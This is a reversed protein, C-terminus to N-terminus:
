DHVVVRSGPRENSAWVGHWGSPLAPETFFFVHKADLPSVNVCGHSMQVGYNRHWFAGHVAYSGEYYMVFPVDEISYPLDGAATGDGDMTTTIHKERIRFEGGPTRHDKEKINSKKGTSVLTAYVPRTGVYAVLTQEALNVDLWREDPKLDAPPAAPRAVRIHQTKIWGRDATESYRTGNKELTRGTLAVATFADLSEGPKLAQSAEDLVFLPATKRGGYAWAVPLKLKDDLEVGKFKSGAAQWMRDAPAVLGKTTKYWRRGNWGFNRDVAVYFGAVMRKALIDDADETLHELKVEHLRDKSDERQWWPREPESLGADRLFTFGNGAGADEVAARPVASGTDNGEAIQKKLTGDDARVDAAPKSQERLYPEYENMQERSPVSKYLPTGNKANRAYVYPLVESLDPQKTAFKVEPHMLNTTGVNGCIFGGSVLQYWGSTCDDTRTPDARVGVKGGNRIYGVKKTREFRPESYVAAATSTVVFWPGTHEEEVRTGADPPASARPPPPTLEPPLTPQGAQPAASPKQSPAAGPPQERDCGALLAACLLALVSRQRNSFPLVTSPHTM